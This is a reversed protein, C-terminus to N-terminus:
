SVKQEKMDKCKEEVEVLENLEKFGLWGSLFIAIFWTVNGQRKLKLVSHCLYGGYVALGSHAIFLLYFCDNMGKALTPDTDPGNLGFAYYATVAFFVVVAPFLTHDYCFYPSCVNHHIAVMRSRIQSPEILPPTFPYIVMIKQCADGRCLIVQIDAGDMTVKKLTASTIKWGKEPQKPLKRKAMAYVSVAHDDNMHDCIRKSTEESIMKTDGDSKSEVTSAMTLILFVHVSYPTFTKIKPPVFNRPDKTSM